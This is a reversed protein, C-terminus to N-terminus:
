HNDHFQGDGNADVSKEVTFNAVVDKAEVTASDKGTATNGDNDSADVTITNVLSGPADLTVPGDAVYTFTM